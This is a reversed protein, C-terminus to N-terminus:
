KRRFELAKREDSREERVQEKCLPGTTWLSYDSSRDPQDTYLRVYDSFCAFVTCM